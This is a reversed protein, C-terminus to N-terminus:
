PVKTSTSGRLSFSDNLLKTLELKHLWSINLHLLEKTKKQFLHEFKIEFMYFDIEISETARLLQMLLFTLVVHMIVM